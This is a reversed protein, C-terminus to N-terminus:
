RTDKHAPCAWQDDPRAEFAEKECWSCERYPGGNARRLRGIISELIAATHDMGDRWKELTAVVELDSLTELKGSRVASAFLEDLVHPLNAKQEDTLVRAM